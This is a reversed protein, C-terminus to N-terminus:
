KHNNRHCCRLICDVNGSPSETLKPKLIPLSVFFAQSIV